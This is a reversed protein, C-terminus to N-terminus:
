EDIVRAPRVGITNDRSTRDGPGRHSSRASEAGLSFSGGRGVRRGDDATFTRLGDGDHPVQAYNIYVDRCWEWVNGNVDHLGFPNARFSCRPEVKDPIM